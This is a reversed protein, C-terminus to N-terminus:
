YRTLLAIFTKVAILACIFAVVTGVLLLSWQDTGLEFGTKYLDYGTAAFMTPIALLFSFEAAQKRNFGASVGGFITAASRSVGPIMALCQFFGIKVAGKYSVADTEEYDSEEKDSWKDLLILLVGGM